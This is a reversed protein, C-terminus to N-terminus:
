KYNLIFNESIIDTVVRALADKKFRKQANLIVNYIFEEDKNM